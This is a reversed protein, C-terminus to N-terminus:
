GAPLMNPQMPQLQEDRCLQKDRVSSSSSTEAERLESYKAEGAAHVISDLFVRDEDSVACICAFPPM